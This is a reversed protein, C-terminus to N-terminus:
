KTELKTELIRLLDVSFASLVRVKAPEKISSKDWIQVIMAVLEGQSNFVPGGSYGPIGHGEFEVFDVIETKHVCRGKATITATQARLLTDSEWGLYIIEDRPLVRDFDGLPYSDVHAGATRKYVALDLDDLVYKKEIAFSYYSDYPIFSLTETKAVHAPLFINHTKGAVFATGIRTLGDASYVRGTAKMSITYEKGVAPITACSISLIVAFSFQVVIAKKKGSM